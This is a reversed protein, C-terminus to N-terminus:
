LFSPKLNTSFLVNSLSSHLTYVRLLCSQSALHPTTLLQCLKFAVTSYNEGFRCAERSHCNCADSVVQEIGPM